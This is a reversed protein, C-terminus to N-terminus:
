KLEIDAVADSGAEVTVYTANSSTSWGGLGIPSVPLGCLLYRGAADTKTMAAPSDFVPEFDVFAGPVPQRVGEVTKFVLGTVIRTNPAAPTPPVSSSLNAERTIQINLTTTRGDLTIPVACEQFYSDAQAWAVTGAVPLGSTQYRGAVDSPTMRVDLTPAGKTAYLDVFVRVGQVPAGSTSDTVVGSLTFNPYAL